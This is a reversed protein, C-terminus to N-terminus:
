FPISLSAYIFIIYFPDNIVKKCYDPIEVSLDNQRSCYCFSFWCPSFETHRNNCATHTAGSVICWQLCWQFCGRNGNYLVSKLQKYRGSAVLKLWFTEFREWAEPQIGSYKLWIIWSRWHILRPFFHWKAWTLVKLDIRYLEGAGCQLYKLNPLSIARIDFIVRGPTGVHHTLLLGTHEWKESDPHLQGFQM